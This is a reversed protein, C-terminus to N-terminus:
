KTKQDYCYYRIIGWWIGANYVLKFIPYLPEHSLAAKYFGLILSFLPNARIFAYIRGWEGAKYRRTAVWAAQNFVKLLTNPNQHYLIAGKAALAQMELKQSLSWDDDYGGKSFGGVADFTQRKIARFVPSQSTNPPIRLRTVQNLYEFNWCRAWVNEWNGVAEDPTFTGPAAGALIPQILKEIFNPAFTMDADVFVLIDGSAKQAGFNRAVAPGQHKERFFSIEPYNKMLAATADTSGDDIVIIEVRLTQLKLSLLCKPLMAASNYAAIIVSVRLM